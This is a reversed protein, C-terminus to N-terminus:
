RQPERHLWSLRLQQRQPRLVTMLERDSLLWRIEQLTSTSYIKKVWLAYFYTINKFNWHKKHAHGWNGDHPHEPGPESPYVPPFPPPPLGVPLLTHSFISRTMHWHRNKIFFVSVAEKCKSDRIIKYWCIATTASALLTALSLSLAMMLMMQPRLIPRSELHCKGLSTSTETVPDTAEMSPWATTTTTTTTARPYHCHTRCLSKTLRLLQTRKMSTTM